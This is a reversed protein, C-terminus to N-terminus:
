PNSVTVLSYLHGVRTSKNGLSPPLCYMAVLTGHFIFLIHVRDTPQSFFSFISASATYFMWTPSANFILYPVCPLSVLFTINLSGWLVLLIFTIAKPLIFIGPTSSSWKKEAKLHFECFSVHGKECFHNLNLITSELGKQFRKLIAIIKTRSYDLSSPVLNYYTYCHAHKSNAKGTNM